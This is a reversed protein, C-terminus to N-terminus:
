IEWVNIEGWFLTTEGSVNTSTFKYEHNIAFSTDLTTTCDFIISTQYLVDHENDNEVSGGLDRGAFFSSARTSGSPQNKIIIQSKLKNFWKLNTCHASFTLMYRAPKIVRGSSFVDDSGGAIEYTYSSNYNTHFAWTTGWLSSSYIRTSVRVNTVKNYLTDTFAKYQVNNDYCTIGGNVDLTTLRTDGSFTTVGATASQNQTKTNLTYITTVYADSFATTQISSDLYQIQNILLGSAGISLWSLKTKETSNFPVDQYAAPSGSFYLATVHTNGTFTTAGATATQNQTKNQLAVLDTSVISNLQTQINSTVGDLYGLEVASITLSNAILNGGTQLKLNGIVTTEGSIATLNQTRGTLVTINSKDTNIQSQINSTAGDLYSLEVGSITKTNVYINAETTLTLDDITINGDFTTQGATASQNQLKAQNTFVIDNLDGFADLQGQINSECGNLYSIETDSIILSNALIYAGSLLKLENDIIINSTELNELYVSDANLISTDIQDLNLHKLGSITPIDVTNLGDM